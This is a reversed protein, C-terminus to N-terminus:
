DAGPHQAHRCDNIAQKIRASTALTYSSYKNNFFGFVAECPKLLNEFM